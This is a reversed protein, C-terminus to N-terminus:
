YIYLIYIFDECYISCPYFISLISPYSSLLIVRGASAASDCVLAELTRLILGSDQDVVMCSEVDVGTQFSSSLRVFRELSNMM